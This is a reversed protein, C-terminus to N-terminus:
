MCDVYPNCITLRYSNSSQDGFNSVLGKALLVVQKEKNCLSTFQIQFFEM